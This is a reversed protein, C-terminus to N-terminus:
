QIYLPKGNHDLHSHDKQYHLLFKLEEQHSVSQICEELVSSSVQFMCSVQSSFVNQALMSVM